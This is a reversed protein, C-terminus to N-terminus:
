DREPETREKTSPVAAAGRRSRTTGQTRDLKDLLALGREPRGRRARLRYRNEADQQALAVTAWEEVLKNVSVGRSRALGKLRQHKADPLRITLTSM